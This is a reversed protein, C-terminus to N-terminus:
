VKRTGDASGTSCDWKHREGHTRGSSRIRICSLFVINPRKRIMCLISVQQIGRLASPTSVGMAVRAFCALDVTVSIGWVYM